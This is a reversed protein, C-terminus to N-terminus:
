SAITQALKKRKKSGTGSISAAIIGAALILFVLAIPREFFIAFSGQSIQLSQRLAGELLPGLIMTLVLPELPVSLRRMVLGVVGFFIMILVDLISSSVAYSGIVLFAFLIACLVSYPVALIRTWLGVLPVNLILLIANGIFLSAIVTWVLLPEEVFLRPGPTLGNALFAGMLVAIAPSAPIGLTFMPVLSANAHANNATEPGSVGEVAGQGLEHRFKSVKKETSYSM